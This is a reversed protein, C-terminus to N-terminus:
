VSRDHHQGGKARLVSTQPLVAMSRLSQTGRSILSRVTNIRCGIATAIEADSLDHFYRLVIAARQKRPLSGLLTSLLSRDLVAEIPDVGSSAGVSRFGHLAATTAKRHDSIFQNVMSRRVYALPSEAAAVKDWKPYMRVFVEQLLEEAAHSDGTLLFATAFLGSSNLRVFRAFQEGFEM